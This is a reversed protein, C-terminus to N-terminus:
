KFKTNVGIKNKIAYGYKLISVRIQYYIKQLISRRCGPTPLSHEFHLFSKNGLIIDLKEDRVKQNFIYDMLEEKYRYTNNEYTYIMNQNDFSVKSTYDWKHTEISTEKDLVHDYEFVGQCLTFVSYHNLKFSFKYYKALEKITYGGNYYDTIFIMLQADYLTIGLLDAEIDKDPLLGVKPIKDFSCWEHEALMTLKEILERPPNTTIMLENLVYDIM